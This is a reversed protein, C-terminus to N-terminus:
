LLRRSRISCFEEVSLRFSNIAAFSSVEMPLKAFSNRQEPLKTELYNLHFNQKRNARDTTHFQGLAEKAVLPMKQIMLTLAPLGSSDCVGVPVGQEVLYKATESRDLLIILLQQYCM